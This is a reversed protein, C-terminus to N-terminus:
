EARDHGVEVDAASPAPVETRIVKVAGDARRTGRLVLTSRGETFGQEPHRHKRRHARFAQRAVECRDRAYGTVELMAAFQDYLGANLLTRLEEAANAHARAGSVYGDLLEACAACTLRGKWKRPDLM